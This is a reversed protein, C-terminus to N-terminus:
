ERLQEALKRIVNLGYGRMFGSNPKVYYDAQAVERGSEDIKMIQLAADFEFGTAVGWVRIPGTLKERVFIPGGSFGVNNVSEFLLVTHNALKKAGSFVGTKLLPIPYGNSGELGDMEMGLPFGLYVIRQGLATASSDLKEEAIGDGLNEAFRLLAVDEGGSAFAAAAIPRYEWSGARRVGVKDNAQLGKVTHAATVMTTQGGIAVLFGTGARDQFCIRLVRSSLDSTVLIESPGGIRIPPRAEDSM